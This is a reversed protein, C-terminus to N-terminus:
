VDQARKNRRPLTVVNNEFIDNDTVSKSVQTTDKGNMLELEEKRNQQIGKSRDKRPTPNDKARNKARKTIADTRYQMDISDATVILKESKEDTWDLVFDSEVIPLDRFMRSKPSLNCKVFPERSNFRVYIYNSCNEDIRAELQWWGKDRAISALDDEIIRKNTFYMGNYLIGDGTMSVM